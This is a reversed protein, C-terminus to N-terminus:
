IEFLNDCKNKTKSGKRFLKNIIRKPSRETPPKVKQDQAIMNAAAETMVDPNLKLKIQKLLGLLLEDVMHNLTASTEIYKCDYIDAIRKADLICIFYCIFFDFNFYM